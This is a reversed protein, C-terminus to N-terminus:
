DDSMEELKNFLEEIRKKKEEIVEPTIDGFGMLANLKPVEEKLINLEGEWKKKNTRRKVKSERRELIKNRHEEQYQSILKKINVKYIDVKKEKAFSLIEPVMSGRRMDISMWTRGLKKVLIENTQTIDFLLADEEIMWERSFFKDGLREQRFSECEETEIFEFFKQLYNKFKEFQESSLKLPKEFDINLNDGRLIKM